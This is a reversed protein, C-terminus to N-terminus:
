FLWSVFSYLRRIWCARPHAEEVEKLHADYAAREEAVTMAPVGTFLDVDGSRVHSIKATFKYGLFLALYVPIGIYGLIFTKYDFEGVFSEAGKFITLVVLFALAIYSGVIGFPARYAIYAPDAGQVNQARRFTIHSLLISM